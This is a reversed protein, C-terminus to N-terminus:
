PFNGCSKHWYRLINRMIRLLSCSHMSIRFGWLTDSHRVAVNRSAAVRFRWADLHKACGADLQVDEQQQQQIVTAINGRSELVATQVKPLFNAKGATPLRIDRIPKATLLEEM